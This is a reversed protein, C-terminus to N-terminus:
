NESLIYLLKLTGFEGGIQVFLLRHKWAVNKINKGSECFCVENRGRKFHALLPEPPNLLKEVDSIDKQEHPEIGM